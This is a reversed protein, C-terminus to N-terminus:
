WVLVRPHYRELKRALIAPWQQDVPSDTNCAATVPAVVGDAIFYRSEAIGCGVLAQDTVDLGDRSAQAWASLALGLTLATSDGYVMVPVPGRTTVFRNSTAKLSQVSAATAPVGTGAVVVVVTASLAVLVPGAAKVSRWLAGEMVPREVLYYSAAALAFTALTRATLLGPGHLGTRAADLEIVVPFHWLYAGYSVTGMWAMARVSLVRAIPRGAVCVAGTILAAACLASVLFGGRYLVPSAGSQSTTLVLTGAGGIGGKWEANGHGGRGHDKDGSPQVYVKPSL